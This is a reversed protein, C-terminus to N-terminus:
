VGGPIILTQGPLLDVYFCKSQRTYHEQNQSVEQSQNLLDGFFTNDQTKSTSWKEFLKLNRPTPPVFYFRKRGWVVHYWM